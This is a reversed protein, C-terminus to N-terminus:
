NAAFLKVKSAVEDVRSSINPRGAQSINFGIYDYSGWMDDDLLIQPAGIEDSRHEVKYTEGTKSFYIIRVVYGPEIEVVSGLPLDEKSIPHVAVFKYHLANPNEDAPPKSVATAPPGNWFGLEHNFSISTMKSTDIKENEVPDVTSGDGLTLEFPKHYADNVGKRIETLFGYIGLGAPYYGVKFVDVNTIQKIWMLGAIYKGIGNLHYGDQTLTDGVRTERVNQIATGSPIIFDINPNTVVKTQTTELIKNFMLNQDRNYRPFGSHNADKAYAWTMHYGYKTNPNDNLKKVERLLGTLAPDITTSDGSDQSVQQVTIIDWEYELIADEITSEETVKYGFDSGWRRYSYGPVGSTIATYHYSLSTGGRYLYAIVYNKVGASEALDAFNTYADATFSNGIALINLRDMYRTGEVWPYKVSKTIEFPKSLANSVAEVIAGGTEEDIELDPIMYGDLNLGFLYSAWTLAAAYKGVKNLHYGDDTLRDDVVSNRLNQISTGSPIVFNIYDNSLVTSETTVVINEYMMVQDNAYNVFDAHNSDKQYAWTMHWVIKVNKNLSNTKIYDVLEGLHPNYTSAIGSKGSVQQITVVDWEEDNLADKVSLKPYARADSGKIYKDYAYAKSDTKANLIHTELSSGGIHIHGIVIDTMKVDADIVTTLYEISNHSFSNGIALVKKVERLEKPSPTTGNKGCAGLLILLVLILLSFYKKM